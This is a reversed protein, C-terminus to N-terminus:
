VPRASVCKHEERQERAVIAQGFALGGDGAPCQGPVYVTFSNQLLSSWLTELLRRNQFVGGSLAVRSLGTDNRIRLCIEVALCAVTAHFRAAVVEVPTGRGMDGAMEDLVGAGHALWLGQRSTIEFPYPEVRQLVARALGELWIAAQADYSCPRMFGCIAAAADFLRGASSTLPTNIGGAMQFDMARREEDAVRGALAKFAPGGTGAALMGYAARYPRRIALEGGPLPSPALAGARRFGSRSCVLFEGGWLTGDEGLGTGDFAVGIVQGTLGNEGMVAAIHAHHHQVRVVPPKESCSAAVEEALRTTLYGPHHDCAIVAVSPQFLSRYHMLSERYFTAAACDTLEGIHHSLFAKDGRTLCFAAKEHGGLALVDGGGSPFPLPEPAYGRGRRIVMERGRVVIAVSDDVRHTIDRNHLIFGGDALDGLRTRAEENGAALPEDHLNGSTMVLPGGTEKLLLHQLPTYPLMIGIAPQGPAISGALLTGPRSEALLIPARPSALLEAEEKSLRVYRRAEQLSAVMVALPKEPRNKRRRLEQVARENCADVALHFGGLGKVAVARGSRIANSAAILASRTDGANSGWAGPRGATGPEFWLSPGCADCADPQAHFRRDSPEEYESECPACMLFHRMATAPRDYPLSDIITYRPGCNTCNIFPYGFRRDRPDFLESVCDSCTAMDPSVLTECAGDVQSRRIEFCAYGAPDLEEGEVVEVRALGPAEFRLDHEFLALSAASGEVEIIVGSTANAVWGFLGRAVATRYVFPRFGVGQVLGRVILRKRTRVMKAALGGM